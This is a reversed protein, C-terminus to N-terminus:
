PVAKSPHALAAVRPKHCYTGGLPPSRSALIALHSGFLGGTYRCHLYHYSLISIILLRLPLRLRLPLSYRVIHLALAPTPVDCSLYVAVPSILLYFRRSLSGCFLSFLLPPTVVDILLRPSPLVISVVILPNLDSAPRFPCLSPSSSAAFSVPSVALFGRSSSLIAFISYM